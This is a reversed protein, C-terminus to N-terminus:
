VEVSRAARATLRAAIEDDTAENNAAPQAAIPARPIFAPQRRTLHLEPIRDLQPLYTGVQHWVLGSILALISLAAQFFLQVGLMARTKTAQFQAAPSPSLRM